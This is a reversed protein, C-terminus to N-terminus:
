AIRRQVVGEFCSQNTSATVAPPQLVIVIEDGSQILGREKAFSVANAVVANVSVFSPTQLPLVGFLCGMFRCTSESASLGLVPPLRWPAALRMQVSLESASAGDDSLCVILRTALTTFQLLEKFLFSKVNLAEVPTSPVTTQPTMNEEHPCVLMDARLLDSAGCARTLLIKQRSLAEVAEHAPFTPVMIIGDAAKAAETLASEDNLMIRVRRGRLGLSKERIERVTAASDVGQILIADCGNSYAVRCQNAFSDCVFSTVHVLSLIVFISSQLERESARIRRIVDSIRESCLAQGSSSTLIVARYDAFNLSTSVDTAGFIQDVSVELCRKLFASSPIPLAPKPPPADLDDIGSIQLTFEVESAM